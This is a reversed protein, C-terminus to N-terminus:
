RTPELYYNAKYVRQAANKRSRRLSSSSVSLVTNAGSPTAVTGPFAVTGPVTFRVESLYPNLYLQYPYGFPNNVGVGSPSPLLADLQTVNAGAPLTIYVHSYVGTTGSITTSAVSTRAREMKYLLARADLVSREINKQVRLKSYGGTVASSVLIILCLTIILELLTFGAERTRM